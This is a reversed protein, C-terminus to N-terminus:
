LAGYLSYVYISKYVKEPYLHIYEDLDERKIDAEAIFEELRAKAEDLGLDCTQDLTNLLDLFQLTAVNSENIDAKPKRIIFRQGKLQIERYKGGSCNSAIEKVFPVQANLGIQNAFTAGAYYGFIQGNRTIYKCKAVLNPSIKLPEKGRPGPLYYVGNDYRIIDGSDALTKFSQRLSPDNVGPLEIDSMFIPEGPKFTTLLYEYLM